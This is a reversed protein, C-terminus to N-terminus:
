TADLEHLAADFDFAGIAERVAEYRAGLAGRFVQPEDAFLRAARMDDQALLERLQQLRTSAAQADPMPDVGPADSRARAALWPSLGTVLRSLADGLEGLAVHLTDSGPEDIRRELGAAAQQVELAGLNAAAGKVTHALLRAGSVDGRQLSDAIRQADQAHSACFQELLAAYVDTKGAVRSVGTIVDLGQMSPLPVGAPEQSGGRARATRVTAWKDLMRRLEAPEVPKPLHDNMGAELCRERDAHMANATMAVIPLNRLAPLLRIARTAAVGDMVPMQMDMLVLDYSSEQVMQLAQAGDGAVDVECGMDLLLESAIQQNIANDEVLLVRASPAGPIEEVDPGPSATPPHPTAMSPLWRTVTDLVTSATVPKLLVDDIGSQHAARMVEERGYATVLVCRPHPPPLMSHVRSVLEIGDMGPMQWDIMALDFSLRQDAATQLLELGQQANAACRTEFGLSHLTECLVARAHENDDVVLVRRGRLEPRVTRRPRREAKGLTSTFWFTSGEGLGSQVGVEGGMMEALSKAIALGLGTGGYRRTISTDAQQFSRFLNQQQEQSMGIGTDRVSLKLVVQDDQERLKRVSIDIEGQETFKLANSGFNLLVQGLRLPDGVLDLPVDGAVDVILELGKEQAKEHLLDTVNALVKELDFEISEISLKGAEIKSFDLIDNIVGLLHKSSGQLKQLYDLQRPSIETKLLLHSLGIIANIPTRIEHSMNALFDSKTQTANEALEKARLLADAAQREATVDTIVVVMSGSTQDLDILRGSMRTRLQSGDKRRLWQEHEYSGHLQIQQQLRPGAQEWSEDDPYWIRTSAGAQESPSRGLMEGLSQNCRVIQRTAIDVIALGSPVADFLAQLEVNARRLEEQARVREGIDSLLAFRLLGRGRHDLVEGGYVVCPIDGGGSRVLRAEAEYNGRGAPNTAATFLEEFRRGIIHEPDQGIMRALALNVHSIRQDRGIQVFGQLTTSLITETRARMVAVAVIGLTLLGALVLLFLVILAIDGAMLGAHLQAAASPQLMENPGTLVAGMAVYHVLSVALGFTVGRVASARFPRRSWAAAQLAIQARFALVGVLMAAFLSLLVLALSYRMPALMAAMGCYHMAAVGLGALAGRRMLARASAGADDLFWAAAVMGPVVSLATIGDDFALMDAPHWALMGVFHMAWISGGLTAAGIPLWIARKVLGQLRATMEFACFAGLVAIFVSLAVIAGNFDDLRLAPTWAGAVLTARGMPILM